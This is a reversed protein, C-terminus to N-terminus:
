RRTHDSGIEVLALEERYIAGDPTRAGYLLREVTLDIEGSREPPSAISYSRQTFGDPVRSMPELLKM